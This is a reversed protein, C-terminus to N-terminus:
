QAAVRVEHGALFKYLLSLRASDANSFSGDIGHRGSSKQAKVVLALLEFDALRFPSLAIGAMGFGCLLFMFRNDRGASQENEACLPVFRPTDIILKASASAAL